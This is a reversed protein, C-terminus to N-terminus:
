DRNHPSNRIDTLKRIVAKLAERREANGAKEAALMLEIILDNINIFVDSTASEATRLKMESVSEM